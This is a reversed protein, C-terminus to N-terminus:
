RLWAWHARIAEPLGELAAARSPAHVVCGPLDLVHALCRGHVGMELYVAYHAM